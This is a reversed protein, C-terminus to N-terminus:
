AQVFAASLPEQDSPPSTRIHSAGRQGCLNTCRAYSVVKHYGGIDWRVWRFVCSTKSIVPLDKVVPLPPEYPLSSSWARWEPSWRCAATSGAVPFAALPLKQLLKLFLDKSFAHPRCSSPSLGTSEGVRTRRHTSRIIMLRIVIATALMKNALPLNIEWPHITVNRPPM